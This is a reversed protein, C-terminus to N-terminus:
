ASERVPVCSLPQERWAPRASGARARRDLAHNVVQLTAVRQILEKGLKWGDRAFVGNGHKLHGLM